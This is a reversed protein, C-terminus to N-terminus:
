CRVGGFLAAVLPDRSIGLQMAPVAKIRREGIGANCNGKSGPKPGRKKPEETLLRRRPSALEPVPVPLAGPVLVYHKFRRDRQHDALKIKGMDLLSHVAFHAARKGVNLDGIVDKLTISKSLMMNMVANMRNITIIQSTYQKAM